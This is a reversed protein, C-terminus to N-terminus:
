EFLSFMEIAIWIDLQRHQIYITMGFADHRHSTHTTLASVGLVTWNKISVYRLEVSIDFATMLNHTCAPVRSRHLNTKKKEHFLTLTKKKTVGKPLKPMGSQKTSNDGSEQPHLEAQATTNPTLRENRSHRASAHLETRLKPTVNIVLDRFLTNEDHILEASTPEADFM